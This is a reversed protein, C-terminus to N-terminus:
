EINVKFRGSDLNTHGTSQHTINWIYNGFQSATAAAADSKSFKIQGMAILKGNHDVNNWCYKMIQLMKSGMSILTTKQCRM